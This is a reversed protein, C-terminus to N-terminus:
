TPCSPWTMRVERSRGSAGPPPDGLAQPYVLIFGAEDALSSLGDLRQQEAATASFGHLSLVLPSPAAEIDPPVYLRYQREQGRSVLTELEPSAPASSAGSRACALAAILLCAVPGFTRRM